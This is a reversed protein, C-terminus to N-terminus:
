PFDRLVIFFCMPSGCSIKRLISGITTKKMKQPSIVGEQVYHRITETSVGLIKSIEGVSLFM